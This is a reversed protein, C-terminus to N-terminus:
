ASVRSYVYGDGVQTRALFGTETAADIVQDVFRLDLPADQVLTIKTAAGKKLRDLVWERAPKLNLRYHPSEHIIDELERLRTLHNCVRGLDPTNTDAGYIMRVIEAAKFSRSPQALFYSLVQNRALTVRAPPSTTEEKARRPLDGFSLSLLARRLAPKNKVEEYIEGITLGPSEALREGIAMHLANARAMREANQRAGRAVREREKRAEQMRTRCEALEREADERAIKEERIARERIAAAGLQTANELRTILQSM